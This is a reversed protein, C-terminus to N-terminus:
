EFVHKHKTYRPQTCHRVKRSPTWTTARCTEERKVVVGYEVPDLDEVHADRVENAWLAFDLSEDTEKM